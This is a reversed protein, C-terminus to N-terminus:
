LVKELASRVADKSLHTYRMSMRPDKHGLAEMILKQNAGAMALRSAVDHRLDHFRVNRIGCALKRFARSLSQPAMQPLVLDEGAMREVGMEVLTVRLAETLPVTHSEGNKTMPFTVLGNDLDVDQRRLGMLNSRRGALARAFEIYLRLTPSANALLTDREADTLWRVRGRPERVKKLGAAPDGTIYGWERATKLMAKVRVLYKNATGPKRATREGAWWLALTEPSLDAFRYGGLRESIDRLIVKERECTTSTWDVAKCPQYRTEIFQALTVEPGAKAASHTTPPGM